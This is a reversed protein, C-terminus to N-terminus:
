RRGRVARAHAECDKTEALAWMFEQAADDSPFSIQVLSHDHGIVNAAAAHMSNALRRAAAAPDTAHPQYSRHREADRGQEAYQERTLAQFSKSLAARRQSIWAPSGNGTMTNLLSEVDAMFAYEAETM